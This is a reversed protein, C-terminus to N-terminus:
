GSRQYAVVDAPRLVGDADAWGPRVVEGVWAGAPLDALDIVEVVHHVAPDISGAPAVARVGLRGLRDALRAREAPDATLDYARILAERDDRAPPTEPTEAPSPAPVRETPRSRRRLLGVVGALAAGVVVGVLLMPDFLTM